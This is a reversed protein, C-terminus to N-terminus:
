GDRADEEGFRGIKDNTVDELGRRHMDMNVQKM